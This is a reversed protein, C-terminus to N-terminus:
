MHLFPTLNVQVALRCVCLGQPRRPQGPVRTKESAKFVLRAKLEVKEREDLM